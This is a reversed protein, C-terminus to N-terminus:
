EGGSPGGRADAAGIGYVLVEGTAIRYFYHSVAARRGDAFVVPIDIAESRSEVIAQRWAKSLPALEDASLGDFWQQDYLKRGQWSEADVGFDRECKANVFYTTGDRGCLQFYIPMNQVAVTPDPQAIVSNSRSGARRSREARRPRLLWLALGLLGMCCVLIAFPAMGGQASSVAGLFTGIWAAEVALILFTAQM